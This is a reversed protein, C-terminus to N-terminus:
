VMDSIAHRGESGQAMDRKGRSAARCRAKTGEEMVRDEALSGRVDDEGTSEEPYHALSTQLRPYTSSRQM